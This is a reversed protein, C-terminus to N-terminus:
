WLTLFIRLSQPTTFQNTAVFVYGGVFGKADTLQNVDAILYICFSSIIRLPESRNLSGFSMVEQMM